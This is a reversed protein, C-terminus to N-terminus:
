TSSALRIDGATFGAPDETTWQGLAPCFSRAANYLLSTDADFDRAASAHRGVPAALPLADAPSDTHPDAADGSAVPAMKPRDREALPPM